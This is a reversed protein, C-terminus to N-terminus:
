WFLSLTDNELYFYIFEKVLMGRILKEIEVIDTM